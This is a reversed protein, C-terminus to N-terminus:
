RAAKLDVSISVGSVNFGSGRLFSGIGGSVDSEAMLKGNERKFTVEM